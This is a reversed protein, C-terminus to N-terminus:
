GRTTRCPRKSALWRDTRESRSARDPGRPVHLVRQVRDPVRLLISRAQQQDRCAAGQARGGLRPDGSRERPVDRVRTRRLDLPFVSDTRIYEQRDTETPSPAIWGQAVATAVHAAVHRGCVAASEDCCDVLQRRRHTTPAV